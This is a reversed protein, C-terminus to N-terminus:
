LLGTREAFAPWRIEVRAQPLPWRGAVAWEVAAASADRLLLAQLADCCQSKEPM